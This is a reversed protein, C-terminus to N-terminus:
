VAGAMFGSRYYGTGNGCVHSETVSRQQRLVCVASVSQSLVYHLCQHGCVRLEESIGSAADHFAHAQLRGHLERVGYAIGPLPRGVVQHPVVPGGVPESVMLEQLEALIGAHRRQVHAVDAHGALGSYRFQEIFLRHILEQLLREPRQFISQSRRVASVAGHSRCGSMRFRERHFIELYAVLVVPRFVVLPILLEIFGELFGIGAHDVYGVGMGFLVSQGGLHRVLM